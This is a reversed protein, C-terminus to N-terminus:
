RSLNQLDWRFESLVDAPDAKLALCYRVYDLVDLLVERREYKSVFSQTTGMAEAVHQQTLGRAKRESVLRDILAAYDESYRDRNAVHSGQRRLCPYTM